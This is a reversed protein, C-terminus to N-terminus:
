NNINEAMKIRNSISPHSYLLFEVIPNPEEDSLNMSSLKRMASIFPEKGVSTIAYKDSQREYYRSL